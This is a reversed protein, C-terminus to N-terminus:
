KRHGSHESHGSGGHEFSGHGSAGISITLGSSFPGVHVSSGAGVIEHSPVSPGSRRGNLLLDISVAAGSCAPVLVFPTRPVTPDGSSAAAVTDYPNPRANQVAMSALLRSWGAAFDVSQSSGVVAAKIREHVEREFGAQYHNHFTRQFHGGTMQALDGGVGNVHEPVFDFSAITAHCLKFDGPQPSIIRGDIKVPSELTIENKFRVRGRAHGVFIQLGNQWIQKEYELDAPVEVQVTFRIHEPGALRLNDVVVSLRHPLDPCVLKMREWNGHNRMVEVVRVGRISPVHAQHGWDRDKQLAVDRPLHRLLEDRVLKNFPVEAVVQAAKVDVGPLADPVYGAAAGSPQIPRPPPPFDDARCVVCCCLGLFVACTSALCAHM